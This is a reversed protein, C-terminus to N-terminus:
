IIKVSWYLMTTPTKTKFIEKGFGADLEANVVVRTGAYEASELQTYVRKWMKTWSEPSHAYRTRGLHDDVLGEKEFGQHRGFAISGKERKLLTAVALAIQFQTDEDYLHFLAGLYFHSVKGGLQTLKTAQSFEVSDQFKTSDPSVTFIDDTFFRIPSTDRDRYLDYGLDIFEQRLDVGVVNSATYGDYVLKRVDTGMCCGLDLFTTNGSKGSEVVEHYVANKSMMLNVHHFGRICPYPYKEYARKQVDLVRKRLEQEDDSIAARLFAHEAESLRLLSDDLPPILSAKPQTEAIGGAM